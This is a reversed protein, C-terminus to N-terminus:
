YYPTRQYFWQLRARPNQAFRADQKLKKEFEARLDPDNALMKEAMPIMVYPEAYETRSLINMFFGWQFFSDPSDPELLVAALDALPQDTPIRVSGAPYRQQRKEVNYKATVRVHGEFPREALKFERLRYMDVTVVRPTSTREMRVGHLKLRAIVTSCSPPLWYAKPLDVQLSPMNMRLLPITMKIPKGTWQLYTSGTVESSDLRSSIGLFEIMEPAKQRSVRWALPVRAVHRTQDAKIADRLSKGAKALLRLSSELLVYTGLVRQKYPKLSHNEVLVTPLHRLDGYGNSFRPTATWDVIGQKFNRNNVAFVLPGPIHGMARLDHNLAPRLRTDLWTAIAPSYGHPGTYGFTIDYQYDAGDTVHLDFYLDPQWINLARILAQMEPTDLKTYDRNLNLNQATTRWGMERPGRQNIRNYRSFREHGDVNFIPIFLFNAGNLLDAKQRHVTMDRLLMLGADKGDIEGAHIGAQALLTPKGTAKLAEPTFARERS